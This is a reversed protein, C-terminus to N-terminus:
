QGLTYTIFSLGTMNVQTAGMGEEDYIVGRIGVIIEGARLHIYKFKGEKFNGELHAIKKKWSDM